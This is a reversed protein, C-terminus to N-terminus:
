ERALEQRIQERQQLARNFEEEVATRVLPSLDQNSLSLTWGGIKKELERLENARAAARDPKCERATALAEHIAAVLEQFWPLKEVNRPTYKM